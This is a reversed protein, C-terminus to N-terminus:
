LGADKPDIGMKKLRDLVAARPAGAKIAAAADDVVQVQEPKLNSSVSEGSLRAMASKASPTLLDEGSVKAKTRMGRNYQDEVSTIRGKLLDIGQQVMAKLAQPSDANNILAEWNKLDHVNGGTGRFARTLEDVVAIKSAEFRKMKAAFEPDVAARAANAPANILPYGTNDLGEAAKALSGLHSITTNFSAVNQGMKGKALDTQTDNRSKWLSLDFGPEYQAVDRMLSRIQPSKMAFGSPPAQRGEAIAKITGAKGPDLTALFADGTLSTDRTSTEDGGGSVVGEPGSKKVRVLQETGDELTRKEITYDKSTDLGSMVVDSRGTRSNNRIIKDGVTTFTYTGPDLAKQLYAAAIPRTYPNAYLQALQQRSLTPAAPDNSVVNQVATAVTPDPAATRSQASVDTPPVGVPGAPWQATDTPVSTPDTSSGIQPPALGSPLRPTATFSPNAGPATPMVRPTQPVGPQTIAQPLNPNAGPQAYANAGGGGMTGALRAAQAERRGSVDASREYYKNVATAAEQPTKTAALADYAQRESGGGPGDKPDGLYEHRMFAQQTATSRYDLGRDAAFKQLNALRDERWQAAGWATGKDGTAGWSPINQGSEAQLNAIKGVAQAHSLGLGGQDVPKVAFEYWSQVNPGRNAALDTQNDFRPQQAAPPILGLSRGMRTLLGDQGQQQPPVASAGSLGPIANAALQGAEQQLQQQRGAENQAAMGKGIESLPTYFDFNSDIKPTQPLQLGQFPM